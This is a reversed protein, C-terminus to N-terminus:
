YGRNNVCSHFLGGSLLGVGLMRGRRAALLDWISDGVVIADNVDVGLRRGAELFLDPDPKAYPVLDRTIVPTSAPIDLMTLTPQASALRGSM